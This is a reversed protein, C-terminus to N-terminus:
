RKLEVKLEETEGADVEVAVTRDEFGPRSVTVTHKGASVSIGRRLSNIEEATGVFRDDLYVAADAPEVLLRLRADQSEQRKEVSEQRKEVSERPRRGERWDDRRREPETRRSDAEDEDDGEDEDRDRERRDPNAGYIEDEDEFPETRDRRKGWFRRVGGEPEVPEYSGYQKAGSIKKLSENIQLKRGPRAQIEITQTEFGDLRFEISYRGRKLYLFDPHGDFDDATGILTRDLYVRAGEPSVDTDIAAWSSGPYLGYPRYPSYGYGYYSYYPYGWGWYSGFGFGWHRRYSRSHSRRHRAPSYQAQTPGKSSDALALAPLLMTILAAAMLLAKKM